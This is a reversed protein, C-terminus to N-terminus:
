SHYQSGQCYGVGALGVAGILAVTRVTRWGFDRLCQWFAQKSQTM